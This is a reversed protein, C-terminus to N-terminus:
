YNPLEVRSGDAIPTHAMREIGRARRQLPSRAGAYPVARFAMLQPSLNPELCGNRESICVIMRTKRHLGQQGVRKSEAWLRADRLVLARVLM